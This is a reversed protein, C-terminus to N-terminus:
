KRLLKRTLVYNGAKIELFYMGSAIAALDLSKRWQGSVAEEQFHILERGAVDRMRVQLDLQIPLDIEVMVHADAPNPWLNVGFGPLHDGLGIGGVMLTQCSTDSGCTDTVVLCVTYSGAAAYTNSPNQAVSTQGDGFDWLWASPTGSSNDTFNLMQPSGGVAYSFGSTPIACVNLQFCFSDTDCANSATLCITYIGTGTYTHTPNQQTSSNGDGFTWNYTTAGSSLNTFNVTQGNANAIFNSAPLACVLVSTCTTDAGCPSSAILCVTYTGPQAYSHTPSQTTSTAGDGFDWNWATIGPTSQDSFQLTVGTSSFNFGATPAPCNVTVTQCITDTGCTNSAILCVTYTGTAAYTHTPGPAASSNGDGFDWAFTTGGVSANTFNVTTNNSSFTFGSTIACPYNGINVRILFDRQTNERYEAWSGGLIEYSRRSIPGATETALSIDPGGMFWAIYYGGSTITIPTSLPVTNWAGATVSTAPITDVFLLTGPGGNPGNDDYVAAIYGTNVSTSVYYEVSNINVPYVPPEQYVGMGDDLQGGSWSLNGNPLGGTSYTLQATPGTLDVMNIESSQVNNGPNIDNANSTTIEWTYQGATTINAQPLFTVTSDTASVLGPLTNSSTYVATSSLNLLRGNLNITTTVDTNGVNRINSTLAPVLGTPYFEGANGENQNWAPTLDKVSLLVTPPYKFQIAFNNTPLFETPYCQLGINGTSNEIGIVIDSACGANDAFSNNMNLYTYTISSDLANLFIQFTNSGYWDPTGTQWWPVNYYSVVLSDKMNTWYYVEGPNPLNPFSSSFTLDSMLPALYLDGAGGPTPITPFCHAINSVNGFSLWGNSGIRFTNFDGWYFHFNFFMNFPGVSNDDGLGNVQTWNATTDIWMPTPGGMDTSALWVYGYADPGGGGKVPQAFVLLSCAFILTFFYKM